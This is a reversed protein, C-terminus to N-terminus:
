LLQHDQAQVMLFLVLLQQICVDLIDQSMIRQERRVTFVFGGSPKGGPLRMRFHKSYRFAYVFYSVLAITETKIILQLAMPNEQLRIRDACLQHGVALVQGKHFIAAVAIEAMPMSLAPVPDLRLLYRSRQVPMIYVSLPHMVGPLPQLGQAQVLRYAMDAKIFGSSIGGPFTHSQWCFKFPFGGGRLQLPAFAPFPRFAGVQGVGAENFRGPSDSFVVALEHHALHHQAATRFYRRRPVAADSVPVEKMRM